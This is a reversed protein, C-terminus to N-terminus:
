SMSKITMELEAVKKELRTLRAEHGKYDTGYFLCDITTLLSKALKQHSEISNPLNEGHEWRRLTRYDVNMMEALLHRPIHLEERRERLRKSWETWKKM